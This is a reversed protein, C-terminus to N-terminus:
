KYKERMSALDLEICKEGYDLKERMKEAIRELELVQEYVKNYQHNNGRENPDFGDQALISYLADAVDDVEYSLKRAVTIKHKPREEMTMTKAIGYGTNVWDGNIYEWRSM